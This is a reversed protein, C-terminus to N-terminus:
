YELYVTKVLELTREKAPKVRLASTVVEYKAPIQSMIFAVVGAEIKKQVGAHEMKLQLHKIEMYWLCPNDSAKKMKCNNYEMTLAILDNEMVNNYRKSLDKWAKHVNGHSDVPEAAQMYGFTHHTCALVLYHYALDDKLFL